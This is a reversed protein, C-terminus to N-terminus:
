RHCVEVKLSSPHDALLLDINNDDVVQVNGGMLEVPENDLKKIRVPVYFYIDETIESPYFKKTNLVLYSFPDFCPIIDTSLKIGNSLTISAVTGEVSPKLGMRELESLINM